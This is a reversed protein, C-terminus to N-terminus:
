NSGRPPSLSSKNKKGEKKLFLPYPKMETFEIWCYGRDYHMNNEQMRTEALGRPGTLAGSRLVSSPSVTPNAAM